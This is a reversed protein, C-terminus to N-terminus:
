QLPISSVAYGRLASSRTLSRAGFSVLDRYSTSPDKWQLGFIRASPPGKILFINPADYLPDFLEVSAGDSVPTQPLALAGGQAPLWLRWLHGWNSELEVRYAQVVLRADAPVTLKRTLRVFTSGHPLQVFPGPFRIAQDQKIAPVTEFLVSAALHIPGISSGPGLYNSISVSKPDLAAAVLTIPSGELGGSEPALALGLSHGNCNAAPHAPDCHPDVVVGQAAGVGAAIGLPAFGLAGAQAGALAVGLQLFTAGDAPLAPLEVSLRLKRSVSLPVSVPTDVDILGERSASSAAVEVGVTVGASLTDFMPAFKAIALAVEASSPTATFLPGAAAVVDTLSFNGGLGWVVRPGVDAVLAYKGDETLGSSTGAVLSQSLAIQRSITGLSVTPFGFPGLLSDLSTDFPASAQSVGFMAAHVAESSRPLAAFDALTIQGKVHGQRLYFAEPELPILLDVSDTALFSTFTFDHLFVHVDQPGGHGLPLLATGALDTFASVSLEGLGVLAGKLPAGSTQDIVVVRLQGPPVAGYSTTQATCTAAGSKATITGPGAGAGTPLGDADVSVAGSAGYRAGQEPVVAGASDRAILTLPRGQAGDRVLQAAPALQCSAVTGTAQTCLGSRCVLDPGCEASSGCLSPVCYGAACSQGQGCSSDSACIPACVFAMCIQALGCQARSQCAVAGADAPGAAAPHCAAALFFLCLFTKM